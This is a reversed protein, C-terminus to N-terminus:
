TQLLFGAVKLWVAPCSLINFCSTCIQPVSYSATEFFIFHWNHRRTGTIRTNPPSLCSSQSNCPLKPMTLHWRLHVFLFLLYIKDCMSVLFRSWNHRQHIRRSGKSFSFYCWNQILILNKLFYFFFLASKLENKHSWGCRSEMVYTLHELHYWILRHCSLLHWKIGNAHFELTLM